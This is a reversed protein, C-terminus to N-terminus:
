TDALAFIRWRGPVGKLVRSGREVLDVDSGLVLDRVTSTLLIDSPGALSAVRSAIHVALGAVDDTSLEIEGTHLGARVRLGLSKVETRIATATELARSPRDFTALIGDGTSKILQGGFRDIADRALVDHRGLLARWASDGISAAHRTSDVIDTFLVTALRRDTRQAPRAGTVFEEIEAVTAEQNGAWILNDSGPLDVHRAGPIRTALYRGHEPNLGPAEPHQVVLTPVRILPLVDRVDLAYINRIMALAVGPSASMREYRAWAVRLGPAARMSPAFLDLMFGRGWSSEIQDIRRGWEDASQGAPYDDSALMRAFGDVIVLARVRDPHSAAFVAGMMTGAMTTVLAAQGCNAADMVTRMDDMWTEITPLSTLPVPDSMGVGRKDFLILRSFSALRGRLEAMPPVDWQAEMHGLWQDVLVVDVPGDGVVQFAVHVDDVRAYQTEPPVSRPYRRPIM